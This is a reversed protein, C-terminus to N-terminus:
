VIYIYARARTAVHRIRACACSTDSCVYICVYMLVVVREYDRNTHPKSRSAGIITCVSFRWYPFHMCVIYICHPWFTLVFSCQTSSTAPVLQMHIHTCLAHIFSSMFLHCLPPVITHLYVVPPVVNASEILRVDDVLSM